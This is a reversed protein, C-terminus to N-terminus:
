QKNKNVQGINIKQYPYFNGQKKPKSQIEAGDAKISVSLSRMNLGERDVIMESFELYM